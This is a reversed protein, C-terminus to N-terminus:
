YKEEARKVKPIPQTKHESNKIMKQIREVESIPIELLDAIDNPTNQEEESLYIIRDLIKYSLGLDEEDTQDEKLGATPAKNIISDPVGLTIAVKKVDEKYLNGIPLLDSGGDGYKTFYGLALETKNGTGIVLYNHKAAFYYLTAMRIRPKLNSSAVQENTNNMDDDSEKYTELMKKHIEDISIYPSRIDLEDKIYRADFVDQDSTTTSPLRYGIVHDAGLAKVALCAVVASDIGGSLGIVVGNTNSKKVKDQIFKCARKIFEREDFNSLQIM